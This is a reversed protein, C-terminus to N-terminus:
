LNLFICDTLVHAHERLLIKKGYNIGEEGAFVKEFEAFENKKLWEQAVINCVPAPEGM